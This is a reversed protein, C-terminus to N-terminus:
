PLYDGKSLISLPNGNTRIFWCRHNGSLGFDFAGSILPCKFLGSDLSVGIECDKCFDGISYEKISSKEEDFFKQEVKLKRM